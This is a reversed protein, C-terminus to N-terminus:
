PKGWFILWWAVHLCHRWGYYSAEDYSLGLSPVRVIRVKEALRTLAIM